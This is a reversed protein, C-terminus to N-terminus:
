DGERQETEFTRFGRRHYNPLANPHDFSSTHLWVRSVSPLLEWAREIALTLAYGGLGKGVLEPVLGFSLIEVVEGPHPHYVVIGAPEGDFSLLWFTRGPAAAFWARWEEDTRSASKWRHAAGVRAMIETILPSDREIAALELGAVPAAPNLQDRDTMEVYTVTETVLAPYPAPAM